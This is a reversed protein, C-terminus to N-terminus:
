SLNFQIRTDIIVFTYPVKDKNYKTRIRGGLFSNRELLVVNRHKNNEILKKLCYIGSIGGGVIVIDYM